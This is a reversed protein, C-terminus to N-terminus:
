QLIPSTMRLSLAWDSLDPDYTHAGLQFIFNESMHKELLVSGQVEKNRKSMWEAELVVKEFIPASPIVVGGTIPFRADGDTDIFGFEGFIRFNETADINMALSSNNVLATDPYKVLDFFNSRFGIRLTVAELGTPKKLEGMLRLSGNNLNESMSELHVRVFIFDAPSGQLELANISAPKSLFSGGPDDSTYNGFFTGFKDDTKFRGVRFRSNGSESTYAAWANLIEVKSVANSTTDDESITLSKTGFNEPYIRIGVSGSFQDRTTEIGTNVRGWWQDMNDVNENIGKSSMEKSAQIQINTPFSYEEVVVSDAAWSSVALSSIALSASLKSFFRM